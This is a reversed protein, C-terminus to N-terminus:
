SWVDNHPVGKFVFDSFYIALYGLIGFYCMGEILYPLNIGWIARPSHILDIFPQIIEKFPNKIEKIEESM